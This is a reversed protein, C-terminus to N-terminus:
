LVENNNMHSSKDTLKLFKLGLIVNQEEVIKYCRVFKPKM